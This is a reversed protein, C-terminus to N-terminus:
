NPSILFVDGNKAIDSSSVQTCVCALSSLQILKDSADLTYNAINFNGYSSDMIQIAYGSSVDITNNWTTRRMKVDSCQKILLQINKFIISNAGEGYFRLKSNSITTRYNTTNIPQITLTGNGLTLFTIDCEEVDGLYITPNCNSNIQIELGNIGYLFPLHYSSSDTIQIIAPTYMGKSANIGRMLSKFPYASSGWEVLNGVSKNVSLYGFSNTGRQAYGTNLDAINVNGTEPSWIYCQITDEGWYQTMNKLTMFGRTTVMISGTPYNSNNITALSEMEGLTNNNLDTRPPNYIKNFKLTDNTFICEYIITPNICLLYIKNNSYCLNQEEIAEQLTAINYPDQITIETYELSNVNLKLFKANLISNTNTTPKLWAVINNNDIKEVGLIHNYNTIYDTFPNIETTTNTSIDYVCIKLSDYSAIYIKNNIFTLDNAHYMLVNEYKGVYSNSVINFIFITGYNNEGQVAIYLNNENICSGQVHGLDEVIDYTISKGFFLEQLQNNSNIAEVLSTNSPTTLNDLDGINSTIEGFIEQNIIEALTGDEVMADLKNNIEEQVDLNTFYNAVYDNLQVYLNQLEETALGNQNVTPLVTEELYKCLWALTEYYSMSDKYSTPIIGLNNIFRPFNVKAVIQTPVSPNNTIESM